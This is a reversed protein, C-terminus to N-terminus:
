LDLRQCNKEILKPYHLCQVVIRSESVEKVIMECGCLASLQRELSALAVVYEHSIDNLIKQSVEYSEIGIDGLLPFILVDAHLIGWCDFSGRLQFMDWENKVLQEGDSGLDRIAQRLGEGVDKLYKDIFSHVLRKCEDRGCFVSNGWMLLTEEVEWPVDLFVIEIKQDEKNM